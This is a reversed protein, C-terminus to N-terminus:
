VNDELKDFAQRLRRALDSRDHKVVFTDLVVMLRLLDELGDKPGNHLRSILDEVRRLSIKQHQAM